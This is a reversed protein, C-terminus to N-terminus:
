FYFNFYFKLGFIYFILELIVMRYEYKVFKIKCIRSWYLWNERWDIGLYLNVKYDVIFVFDFRYLLRFFLMKCCIVKYEKKFYFCLERVLYYIGIIFFM